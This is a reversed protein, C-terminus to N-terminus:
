YVDSKEFLHSFIDSYVVINTAQLYNSEKLNM